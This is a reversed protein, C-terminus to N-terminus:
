RLRHNIRNEAEADNEVAADNIEPFKLPLEL